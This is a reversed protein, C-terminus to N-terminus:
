RMQDKTPNGQAGAEIDFKERNISAWDPLTRVFEAGDVSSTLQSPCVVEAALEADIRSCQCVGVQLRIGLCIWL